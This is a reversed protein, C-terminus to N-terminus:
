TAWCRSLCRGQWGTLDPRGARITLRDMWPVVALGLMALAWLVWALGALSWRPWAAKATPIVPVTKMPCFGDEGDGSSWDGPSRAGAHGAETEGGNRIVSRLARSVGPLRRRDHERDNWWPCGALCSVVLYVPCGVQGALVVGPAMGQAASFRSM